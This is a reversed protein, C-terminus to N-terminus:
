TLHSVFTTHQWQDWKGCRETGWYSGAFSGSGIPSVAKCGDALFGKVTAAPDVPGNAVPAGPHKSDFNNQEKLSPNPSRLSQAISNIRKLMFTNNDRWGPVHSYVLTITNISSNVDIPTDLDSPNYRALAM